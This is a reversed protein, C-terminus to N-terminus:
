NASCRRQLAPTLPEIGRTEVLPFLGLWGIPRGGVELPRGDAGRAARLDALIGRLADANPDDAAKLIEIDPDFYLLATQEQSLLHRFFWPKLATALETVNYLMPMRTEEGPPLDIDELAFSDFPEAVAGRPADFALVSSGPKAAMITATRPVERLLAVDFGTGYDVKFADGPLLM